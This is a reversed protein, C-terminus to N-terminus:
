DPAAAARSGPQDVHTEDVPQLLPEARPDGAVGGARGVPHAVDRGDALPGAPELGVAHHPPHVAVQRREDAADRGQEALAGVGGVLTSLDGHVRWVVGDPEFWGSGEGVTAIDRVWDPAGTPDGSVRARFRERALQPLGTLPLTPVGALTGPTPRERGDAAAAGTWLRGSPGACDVPPGCAAVM